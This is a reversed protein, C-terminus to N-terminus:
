IQYSIVCVSIIFAIMSKSEMLMVDVGNVWASALKELVALVM